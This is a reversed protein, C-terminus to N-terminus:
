QDKLGLMRRAIERSDVSYTGNEIAERLERVRDERVDPAEEAARKAESLLRAKQSFTARDASPAQRDHDQPGEVAREPLAPKHVQERRSPDPGLHDIREM